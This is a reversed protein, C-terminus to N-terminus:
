MSFYSKISIFVYNRLLILWRLFGLSLLFTNSLSISELLFTKSRSERLFHKSYHILIVKHLWKVVLNHNRLFVIEKRLFIMYMLRHKFFNLIKRPSSFILYMWELKNCYFYLIYCFSVCDRVFFVFSFWHLVV